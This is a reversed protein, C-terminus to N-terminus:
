GISSMQLREEIARLRQEYRRVIGMIDATMFHAETVEIAIRRTQVRQLKIAIENIFGKVRLWMLRHGLDCRYYQRTADFSWELEKERGIHPSRLFPQEYIKFERILDKVADNIM